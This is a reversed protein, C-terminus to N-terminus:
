LGQSIHRLSYQGASLSLVLTLISAGALLQLHNSVPLGLTMADITSLAFILLPVMLPLILLLILLTGGRATTCLASGLLSLSSMAPLGILLTLLLAGAQEFSLSYLPASLLSLFLIPISVLLFHSLSKALFLTIPTKPILLLQTLTGDNVDEEVLAPAYLLAALAAMLWVVGPGLRQLIDPEPGVLLPFLILALLFVGVATGPGGASRFAYRIDYYVLSIM